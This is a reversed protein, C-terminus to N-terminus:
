QTCYRYQDIIENQPTQETPKYNIKKIKTPHTDKKRRKKRHDQTVEFLSSDNSQDFIFKSCKFGLTNNSPDRKNSQGADTASIKSRVKFGHLNGTTTKSQKGSL